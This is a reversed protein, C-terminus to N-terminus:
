ILEQSLNRALNPTAKRKMKMKETSNSYKSIWILYRRKMPMKKIFSHLYVIRSHLSVM